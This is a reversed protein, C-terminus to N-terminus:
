RKRSKVFKMMRRRKEMQRTTLKNKRGEYPNEHGKFEVRLPVGELKLRKRFANVLYRRYVDPISATQSGHVIIVPPQKGGQHAYRLKIRRGRVLPPAHQEVFLELWRTLQPTPIDVRSSEYASVVSGMLEGVGTGHLASVRFRRVFDLFPLKVEASRAVTEKQEESLGDWKNIALALSPGKDLVLGLLSADQDTIGEQADIVFVVVDSQEVAQLAKIVSFKEVTEKIKSRRRMGATDILTFVQGDREFPVHVSDRTTGPQDFTIVREEGVLRNVLTSKGVNPRGIIAVRIGPMAEPGSEEHKPLLTNVAKLLSSVGRGQTASVAYPEGLGMQYFDVRAAEIDLGDIKNTVLLCPKNERRLSAALNQDTANMGDRADVIFLVVDAEEIALHSQHAMEAHIGEEKGTLGGTDILLCPRGSLVARGYQRDRTLGPYNAVIADRSKTLRNFLTSKGVNPRGVLAIVPLM